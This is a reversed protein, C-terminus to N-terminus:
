RIYKRFKTFFFFCILVGDSVRGVVHDIEIIFRRKEIKKQIQWVRKISREVVVYIGIDDDSEGGYSGVVGRLTIRRFRRGTHASLCQRDFHPQIGDAICEAVVVYM